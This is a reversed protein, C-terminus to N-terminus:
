RKLNFYLISPIRECNMQFYANELDLREPTSQTYMVDLTKYLGRCSKFMPDNYLYMSFVLLLIVFFLRKM